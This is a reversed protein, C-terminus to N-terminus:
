WCKSHTYEDHYPLKMAVFIIFYVKTDYSWLKGLKLVFHLTQFGFNSAYIWAVFLISHFYQFVSHTYQKVLCINDYFLVRVIFIVISSLIYPPSTFVYIYGLVDGLVYFWVPCIVILLICLYIIIYLIIHKYLYIHKTIIYSIIFHIFLTSLNNLTAQTSVNLFNLLSPTPPPLFVLPDEIWQVGWPHWFAKYM